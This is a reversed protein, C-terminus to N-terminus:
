INYKELIWYSWWARTLFMFTYTMTLFLRCTKRDFLQMKLFAFKTIELASTRRCNECLDIINEHICRAIVRDFLQTKKCLNIANSIINKEFIHGV